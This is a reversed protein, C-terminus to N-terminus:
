SKYVSVCLLQMLTRGYFAYKALIFDAANLVKSSYKSVVQNQVRITYELRGPPYLLTQIPQQQNKIPNGQLNIIEKLIGLWACFGM